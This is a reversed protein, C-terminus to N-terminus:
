PTASWGDRVSGYRTIVVAVFPMATQGLPGAHTNSDVRSPKAWTVFRVGWPTSVSPPSATAAVALRATATTPVCTRSTREGTSVVSLEQRQSASSNGPATDPE